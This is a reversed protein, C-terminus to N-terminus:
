SQYLMVRESTSGFRRSQSGQLTGTNPNCQECQSTRGLAPMHLSLKEGSPSRKNSLEGVSTV